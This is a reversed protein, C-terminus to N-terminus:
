PSPLNSAQGIGLSMESSWPLKEFGMTEPVEPPWKALELEFRLRGHRCLGHHTMGEERSAPAKEGDQFRHGDELDSVQPRSVESGETISPVPRSSSPTTLAEQDNM